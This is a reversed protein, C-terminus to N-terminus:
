LGGLHDVQQNSSPLSNTLLKKVILKLYTKTLDSHNPNVIYPDYIVAEKDLIFFYPSYNELSINLGGKEVQYISYSINNVRGFVIIDRPTAKDTFIAVQNKELLKCQESM